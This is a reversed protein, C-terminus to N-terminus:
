EDGMGLLERAINRLVDVGALYSYKRMLLAEPTVVQPDWMGEFGYCSCHSASVEYLVGKKLFLVEASGEWKGEDCKALIVKCGKLVIPDCDFTKFIWEYDKKALYKM